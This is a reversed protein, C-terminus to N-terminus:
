EPTESEESEKANIQNIRNRDRLYYTIVNCAETLAVASYSALYKNENTKAHVVLYEYYEKLKILEDRVDLLDMTIGLKKNSTTISPNKRGDSMSKKTREVKYNKANKKLTKLLQRCAHDIDSDNYLRNCSEKLLCKTCDKKTAKCYKSLVTLANKLELPTTM